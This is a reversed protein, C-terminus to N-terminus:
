PLPDHQVPVAQKAWARRCEGCCDAMEPQLTLWKARVVRGCLTLRDGEGGIAESNRAIHLISPKSPCIALSSQGRGSRKLDERPYQGTTPEPLKQNSLLKLMTRWTTTFGPWFPTPQNIGASPIRQIKKQSVLSHAAELDANAISPM